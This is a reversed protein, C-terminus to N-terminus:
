KVPGVPNYFITVDLNKCCPCIRQDRGRGVYSYDPCHNDSYINYRTIFTQNDPTCNCCITNALITATAGTFYEDIQGRGGAVMDLEEDELREPPTKKLGMFDEPTLDYGYGKALPIIEECIVKGLDDGSINEGEYKGMIADFANKLSEDKDKLILFRIANEKSM